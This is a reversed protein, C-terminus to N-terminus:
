DSALLRGKHDFTICVWSGLEEKPVTFLKEVQFGPLLEFVGAPVRSALAVNDFVKGWPGDGYTARVEVAQTSEAGREAAVTWTEDTVVEILKGDDTLVALKLVFAAVAGQNEVEAEIVNSGDVLSATVDADMPEQWESSGAVRKGNIFVTGVNDCSARLRASKIKTLEVSTRLVYNNGNDAGWIWKPVAGGTFVKDDIASKATQAREGSSSREVSPQLEAKQTWTQQALATATSFALLAIFATPQLM